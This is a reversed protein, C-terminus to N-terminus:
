EIQCVLVRENAYPCKLCAVGPQEVVAWDVDFQERLWRFDALQFQRWRDRARV